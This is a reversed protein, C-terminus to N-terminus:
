KKMRLMDEMNAKAMPWLYVMEGAETVTFEIIEQTKQPGQICVSYKAITEVRNHPWQVWFTTGINNICFKMCKTLM